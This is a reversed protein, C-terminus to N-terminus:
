LLGACVLVMSGPAVIVPATSGPHLSVTPASSCGVATAARCIM